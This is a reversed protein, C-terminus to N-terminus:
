KPVYTAQQEPTGFHLIVDAAGQTLAAYMNFSTCSGSMFEEVLMALTFPGAQGGHKEELALTKWGARYLAQWAEKFGPATKVQGAELKCGVEDGLANIPGLTKQVWEYAQELVALVEDKGWNAFPPKGVLEDLKFQEFLLFSLDRLNAKYYNQQAMPPTGRTASHVTM